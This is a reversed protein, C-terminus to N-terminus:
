EARKGGFLSNSSLKMEVGDLVVSKIKIPLKITSGMSHSVMLPSGISSKVSVEDRLNNQDSFYNEVRMREEDEIDRGDILILQPCRMILTVRYVQRRAVANGSMAIEM